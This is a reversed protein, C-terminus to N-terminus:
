DDDEDDGSGPAEGTQIAEIALQFTDPDLTGIAYVLYTTGADLTTRDKFIIARQGDPRIRIRTIGRKVDTAIQRGNSIRLERYGGAKPLINVVVRQALALHHLIVRANKNLTESVDNTYLAVTPTGAETVQAAITASEATAPIFVDGTVAPANACPTTTDAPSIEISYVEGVPLDLPGRIEGFTLGALADVCGGNVAIDVPLETPEGLVDGAIGHVVYVGAVQAQAAGAWAAVALVGGAAAKIFGRM